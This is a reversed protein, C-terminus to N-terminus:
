DATYSAVYAGVESEVLLNWHDSIMEDFYDSATKGLRAMDVAAPYSQRVFLELQAVGAVERGRNLHTIMPNFIGDILYNHLEPTLVIKDDNLITAESRGNTLFAPISSFDMNLKLYESVSRTAWGAGGEFLCFQSNLFNKSTMYFLLTNADTISEKILAGLSREDLMVTTSGTRSTFFVEDETAGRARLVHDIFAAFLKDARAHSIFVCYREKLAVDTQDLKNAIVLQLEDRTPQTIEPYQELDQQLQETFNRRSAADRREKEVRIQRNIQTALASRRQVLSRVIPRVLARLLTVRGDTEDFDQRNSTAIDPLEDDDLLDFSIEGEIYNAYTDALGLQSLLRDSALKGRVYVRIQAPNYYKNRVFRDDNVRAATMDITAHVGIWGTLAYRVGKYTRQNLDVLEEIESWAEDSPSEKPFPFRGPAHEHVDDTLGKAPIKVPSPSALLEAPAVTSLDFHQAVDAFNGFAIAKEVPSYKPEARSTSTNVWLLIRPESGDPILFQNALRSGLANMSQPGYGTLDVGLMTLRTGSALSGWLADNPTSPTTMVAQLAPHDDDAVAADRADLEWETAGQVHATQLFFHPSLFLAALKGIGKRGKPSTDQVGAKPADKRKNHGVKVYTSIDDRSMGSGDDIVEVTANAKDSADIYVYVNKAGADLGNAVLESLASWPNSYLGRGLLKLALWSFTFSAEDREETM